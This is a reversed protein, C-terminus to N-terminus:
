RVAINKTKWTSIARFTSPVAGQAMNNLIKNNNLYMNNLNNEQKDKLLVSIKLNARSFTCIKWGSKARAEEKKLFFLEFFLQKTM